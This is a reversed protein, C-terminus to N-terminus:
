FGLLQLIEDVKREKMDDSLANWEFHSVPRLSEDVFELPDVEEWSEMDQGDCRPCRPSAGIRFPKGMSDLDCAIDGYSKRLIDALINARKGAVRNNAKLIRDVEDYTADELANLYAIEGTGIGRLIFEGYSGAITKPSKFGAGCHACKFRYLQLKM